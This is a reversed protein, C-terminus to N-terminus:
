PNATALHSATRTTCTKLCFVIAWSPNSYERGFIGDTRSLVSKVFKNNPVSILTSRKPFARVHAQRNMMVRADHPSGFVEKIAM